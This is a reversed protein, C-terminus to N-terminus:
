ATSFLPRNILFRSVENLGERYVRVYGEIEDATGFVPGARLVDTISARRSARVLAMEFARLDQRRALSNLLLGRETLVDFRYRTAEDLGARRM